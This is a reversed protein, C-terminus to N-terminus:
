LHGGQSPITAISEVLATTQPTRISPSAPITKDNSEASINTWELVTLASESEFCCGSVYVHQRHRDYM